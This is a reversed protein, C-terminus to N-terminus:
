KVPITYYLNGHLVVDPNATRPDVVELVNRKRNGVVLQGHDRAHRAGAFRRQGEVGDIGLALPAVHFREGGVRALEQLAHFLGLHVLDIADRRGDGDPLLVGAAIRAGRHGGGGLAVIEQAQQEGAHALGEAGVAARADALVRHIFHGRAQQRLGLARAPVRQKGHPSCAWWRLGQAIVEEFQALLAEVPEELAAADEFEGRGFRQQIDIERLGDEHQHVAQGDPRVQVLAQDIGDLDAIAFGAFHDELAGDPAGGSRKLSFNWHLVQPMSNPSGSGIRNLKLEGKPAQGRQWPKPLVMSKSM